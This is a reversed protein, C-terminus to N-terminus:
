FITSGGDVVLTQGTIFGASDSALFIMAAGIEQPRGVRGVPISSLIDKAYQSNGMVKRLPPTDIQGPAIANVTIGYKAWEVAVTRVFGMVGAKAAGHHATGRPLGILGAISAICIIRGSKQKLMYRGFERTCLFSGMLSTEVTDEFQKLTMKEVPVLEAFGANNILIDITGFDNKVKAAFDKVQDEERVDCQYYVGRRGAKVVKKVLSESQNPNRRSAMAVNAGAEALMPVIAEGFGGIAGTIVATKGNLSFLKKM